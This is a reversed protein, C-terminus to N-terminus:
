VTTVEELVQGDVTTSLWMPAYFAPLGEWGIRIKPLEECATLQPLSKLFLEARKM